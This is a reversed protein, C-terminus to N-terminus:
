GEWGFEHAFDSPDSADIEVLTQELAGWAAHAVILGALLDFAYHQKTTMISICLLAWELWLVARFITWGFSDGRRNLTWFTMMRALLYSHVIHLSPWANWPNDSAHIFEFLASEWRSMSDWDIQDRLDIEAPLLLFFVCCLATVMILGQMGVALQAYGTDDKPCVLLTIPYFAYLLTYPLITWYIVPIERDFGLEPDLVTVGRADAINNTIFYPAAVLVLGILFVELPFQWGGMGSRRAWSNRWFRKWPKRGWSALAEIPEDMEQGPLIPSPVAM